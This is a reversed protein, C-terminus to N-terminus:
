SLCWIIRLLSSRATVAQTHKHTHTHTQAPLHPVVARGRVHLLREQTVAAGHEVLLVQHTVPPVADLAAPGVGEVVDVLPEVAAAALPCRGSSRGVAVCLVSPVALRLPRVLSPVAMRLARVLSPVALRLPRVLSPVSMRLPRVLSPVSMQLPRVLSPVPLRLPRVLSPVPM